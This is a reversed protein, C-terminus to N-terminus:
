RGEPLGLAILADALDTFRSEEYSKELCDIDAQKEFADDGHKALRRKMGEIRKVQKAEHFQLIEIADEVDLWKSDPYDARLLDINRAFYPEAGEDDKGCRVFTLHREAEDDFRAHRYYGIGPEGDDLIEHGVFFRIFEMLACPDDYPIYGGYGDLKIRFGDELGGFAHYRTTGTCSMLLRALERVKADHAKCGETMLDARDPYSAGRDYCLFRRADRCADEWRDDAKAIHAAKRAELANM